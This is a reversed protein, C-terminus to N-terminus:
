TKKNFRDKSEMGIAIGLSFSRYIAYAVDQLSIEDKNFLREADSIARKQLGDVIWKPISDLKEMLGEVLKEMDQQEENNEEFFKKTM